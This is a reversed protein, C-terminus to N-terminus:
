KLHIVSLICTNKFKSHIYIVRFLLIDNIVYIIILFFSKDCQVFFFFVRVM